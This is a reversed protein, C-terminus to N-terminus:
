MFLPILPQLLGLDPVTHFLNLGLGLFSNLLNLSFGSLSSPLNLGLDLLTCLRYPGLVLLTYLLDLELGVLVFQHRVVNGIFFRNKNCGQGEVSLSIRFLQFPM